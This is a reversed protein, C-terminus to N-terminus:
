IGSEEGDKKEKRKRFAPIDAIKGIWAALKGFVSRKGNRRMKRIEYPSYERLCTYGDSALYYCGDCTHM